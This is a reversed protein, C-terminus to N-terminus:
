CGTHGSQRNLPTIIVPYNTELKVLKYDTGSRTSVFCCMKKSPYNEPYNLFPSNGAEKKNEECRLSLYVVWKVIFSVLM